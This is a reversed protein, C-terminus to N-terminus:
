ESAAGPGLNRRGELGGVDRRTDEQMPTSPDVREAALLRPSPDATPTSEPTSPGTGLRRRATNM